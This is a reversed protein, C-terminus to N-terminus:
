LKEMYINFEGQSVGTKNNKFDIYRCDETNRDTRDIRERQNGKESLWYSQTTLEKYGDVNIKYHIHRRRGSYLGLAISRFSYKGNKDSIVYGRLAIQTNKYKSIDGNGTPHYIGDNDCHWIEIKANALPVKGNTDGYITGYVRMSDGPLNTFNLNVTEATNKVFFPGETASDTYDCTNDERNDTLYDEGKKTMASSGKIIMPISILGLGFKKLFKNRSFKKNKM